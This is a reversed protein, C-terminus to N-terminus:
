IINNVWSQFFFRTTSKNQSGLLWGAAEKKTMRYSKGCESLPWLPVNNKTVSNLIVDKAKIHLSWFFISKKNNFDMQFILYTCKWTTQSATGSVWHPPLETHANNLREVWESRGGLPSSSSATELWLRCFAAHSSYFVQSQFPYFGDLSCNIIKHQRFVSIRWLKICM